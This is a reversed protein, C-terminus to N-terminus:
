RIAMDKAAKIRVIIPTDSEERLTFPPIPSYRPIPKAKLKEYIRKWVMDDVNATLPLVGGTMATQIGFIRYVNIAM